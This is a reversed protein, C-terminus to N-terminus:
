KTSFYKSNKSSVKNHSYWGLLTDFTDKIQFKNVKEYIIVKQNFLM